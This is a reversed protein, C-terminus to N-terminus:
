RPSIYTKAERRTLPLVSAGGGSAVLQDLEKFQANIYFNDFSLQRLYRRRYQWARCLGSVGPLVQVCVLFVCRSSGSRFFAWGLLVLSGYVLPDGLRQFLQLDSSVEAMIDQSVQQLSRSSNADVDLRLSATMNFEFERM